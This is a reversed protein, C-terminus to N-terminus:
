DPDNLESNSVAAYFSRDAERIAESRDPTSHTFLVVSSVLTPNVPDPGKVVISYGTEPDHGVRVSHGRHIRFYVLKSM